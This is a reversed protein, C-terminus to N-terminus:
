QQRDKEVRRKQRKQKGKADLDACWVVGDWREEEWGGDKKNRKQEEKREEAEAEGETESVSGGRRM